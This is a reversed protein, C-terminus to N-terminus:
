VYGPGAVKRWERSDTVDASTGFVAALALLAHVQADALDAARMRAREEPALDGLPGQTAEMVARVHQQLQEAARYHEPGTV